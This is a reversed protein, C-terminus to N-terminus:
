LGSDDDNFEDESYFESRGKTSLLVSRKKNFADLEERIIRRLQSETLKM